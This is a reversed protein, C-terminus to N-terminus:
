IKGLKGPIQVEGSYAQSNVHYVLLSYLVTEGYVFNYPTGDSLRGGTFTAEYIDRPNVPIPVIPTPYVGPPRYALFVIEIIGKYTNKFTFQVAPVLSGESDPFRGGRITFSYDSTREIIESPKGYCLM